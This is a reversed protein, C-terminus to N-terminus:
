ELEKKAFSWQVLDSYAEIWGTGTEPDRETDQTAFEDDVQFPNTYVCILMIWSLLMLSKFM